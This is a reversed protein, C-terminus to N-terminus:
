LSEVAKKIDELDKLFAKKIMNKMMFGMLFAMVKASISQPISEFDMTLQTNGNSDELTVNTLYVSGHSEARVKYFENESSDTVWMTEWQEKGFMLRSEKWKLGIMSNSGAPNLIEVSQIGSITKAANEINSVVKWVKEKPANIQISSQAKM